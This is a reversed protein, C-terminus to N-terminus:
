RHISLRSLGRGADSGPGARPGSPQKGTRDRRRGARCGSQFRKGYGGTRSRRRNGRRRWCAGALLGDAFAWGPFVHVRCVPRRDGDHNAPRSRSRALRPKPRSRPGRSYRQIAPIRVARRASRPAARYGGASLEPLEPFAAEIQRAIWSRSPARKAVLWLAFGALTLAILCLPPVALRLGGGLSRGLWWSVVGILAAAFWAAALASWYRLRRYRSAVQDLENWLREQNM